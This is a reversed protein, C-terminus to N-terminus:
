ARGLGALQDLGALRDEGQPAVGTADHHAGPERVALHDPDPAPIARHHAEVSPGVAREGAGHRLDGARGVRQGTGVAHLHRYRRRRRDRRHRPPLPAAMFSVWNATLCQCNVTTRNVMSAARPRVDSAVMGRPSSGGISKGVKVTTAMYGPAFALSRSRSTTFCISSVSWLSSSTFLMLLWMRAPTARM